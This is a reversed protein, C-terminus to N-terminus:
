GDYKRYLTARSIGLFQAAESRNGGMENIVREVYEKEVDKLYDELSFGSRSYHHIKERALIDESKALLSPPLTDPTIVGNDSLVAACAVANALERVNGPWDYAEMMERSEDALTLPKDLRAAEVGLFYETLLSWDDARERLPPLHIDLVKLRFLLDERFEHRSALTDLDSNTAAILRVDVPLHTVDGVRRIEGSQLVRLLKGQLGMPITGVEDLFLSGGRAALFMGDHTKEAGTFAGEAHGFMESELLLPSVAACNMAMWPGDSRGSERHIAGAVLEKGTGTEGQILVPLECAAAKKILRYVDRMAACEGILTGFHASKVALDDERVRVALAHKIKATLDALSFPKCVFDDAGKRIAKVAMDVSGYATIVITPLLPDKKRCQSMLDFGDLSANMRLDTLLLDAGEELFIRAGDDPNTASVVEFGAKKLMDELVLLIAVEDDVVLVKAM